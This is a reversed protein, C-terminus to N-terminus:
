SVSVSESLDVGTSAKIEDIVKAGVTPMQSLIFSLSEKNNMNRYTVDCALYFLESYEKGMFERYKDEACMLNHQLAEDLLRQMEPKDHLLNLSQHKYGEELFEMHKKLKDPDYLQAFAKLGEIQTKTTDGTDKLLRELNSIRGKQWVFTFAFALLIVANMVINTIEM